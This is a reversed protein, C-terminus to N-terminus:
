ENIMPPDDFLPKQNLKRSLTNYVVFLERLSFYQKESIYRHIKYHEENCKQCFYTEKTANLCLFRGDKTIYIQRSKVINNISFEESEYLFDGRTIDGNKEKYYEVDQSHENKNKVIPDHQLAIQSQIQLQQMKESLTMEDSEKQNTKINKSEVNSKM